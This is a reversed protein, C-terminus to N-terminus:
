KGLSRGFFKAQRVQSGYKPGLIQVGLKLVWDQAGMGSGGAIEEM